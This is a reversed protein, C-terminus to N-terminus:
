EAMEKPPKTLIKQFVEINTKKVPRFRSARFGIDDGGWDNAIEVLFLNIQEPWLPSPGIAKITYTTGAKPPDGYWGGKYPKDDICVCKDGVEFPIM